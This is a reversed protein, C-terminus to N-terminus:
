PKKVFTVTSPAAPAQVGGSGVPATPAQLTATFTAGSSVDHRTYDAPVVFLAPDPDGRSIQELNFTVTGGISSTETMQVVVQLDTSVWRELTSTIPKENGLVGSPITRVVRTGAALVGNVVKEGLSTTDSSSETWATAGLGMRLGLLAFPAEVELPGESRVVRTPGSNEGPPAMKFVMAAKFPPQLVYRESKVPDDITINTNPQSGSGDIEAMSREVRTRGQRDRFYRATNTRVIRNGDAFITSSQTQSVASYPEGAITPPAEAFFPGAAVAALTGGLAASSLFGLLFANRSMSM